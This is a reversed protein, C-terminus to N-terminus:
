LNMVGNMAFKFCKFLSKLRKNVINDWQNGVRRMFLQDFGYWQKEVHSM